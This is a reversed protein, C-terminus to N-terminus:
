LSGDMIAGVPEATQDLVLKKLGYATKYEIHSVIFTRQTPSSPRTSKPILNGPSFPLTLRHTTTICCGTRKDGFNRAFDEDMKV